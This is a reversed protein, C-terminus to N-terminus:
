RSLTASLGLTEVLDPGPSQLLRVKDIGFPPEPKAAIALTGGQEIFRAVTDLLKTLDETILVGAPQFRRIDRALNARTVAVPQGTVAALAKLSRGLLSKDALVLTASGLAAKTDALLGTDGSDIATWFAPDLQVLKGTLNIEGLDVGELACRDITLENKIRDETGACDFGLKLEKLGMSTLALRVQLSELGRLPPALVFGDVRVRSRGVEANQHVTEHTISGLSIGYRSMLQGGFGTASATVVSARGMPFGPRWSAASLTAVVRGLDLGTAKAEAMKFAPERGDQATAELTAIAISGIRGREFREVVVGGIGTTDGTLPATFIINKEELRRFSLAGAIRAVLMTYSYPSAIQGDYRALDIGEIVLLGISWTAGGPPDAMRVDNLEVRGAQLPDGLHFGTLPTRGQLLEGLPWALGSAEWRRISLTGGLRKSQLDILTVRRDFLGVEVEAIKVMGDREIEAKIRSAAHKEALPVAAVGLGVLAIVVVAAIVSKKM